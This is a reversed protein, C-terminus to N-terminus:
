LRVKRLRLANGIVSVSSFSMAAAAIMPNLLWHFAPFLVGAAIPVGIINYVFAFFLNERINRMTAMSLRRARLIANLDGKLLTIGGAEMAVDTGTGMAIGVDAAALAPADNVGDGAMGVVHGGKQYLKVVEAKSQPLVDAEFAIGLRSAVAKATTASDGTVMVITLGARKLEGIVEATSSKLPDAVSILGAPKGDAAIFMVTQAQSRLAEAEREARRKEMRLQRLLEANGVAFQRGGVKGTVGRGTISEFDEASSIPLGRAEAAKVIAAALPHESGRELSVVVRLLEDESIESFSKVSTVEPKGETLTGTKDVILTDVKRFVELAEANRILIGAHAGRGTGVMVAMPTALGLACPCAVILVAVANVLAHAFRPQPGIMYWVVFTAIASLIVAPVFYASVKDALRQIPARSRQAESVMKVIQSLLTDAGVREARMILSGTGNVTGATVKAGTEKEVPLPEGTIMSEDISSHGDEVLGDVPVKEGPRVRLRDGVEVDSLPIDSESGNQIKRATRPALGLLAKIASSTQSRARLEMVQGLLVLSIIVAAPEFYLGIEGNGERFSAPFAQPAITATVSYVYAAGSGLAILTFMNPSRHVLSQWAREFFPWGCWLVVPTALASELWAWTQASLVHQLPMGPLFESVMLALLPISLAVSIWFRRSMDALEPNSETGTIERPELAMGCIPCAGPESRVIEPHMPCTYETRTVPPTITEPELAMGCRPCSGPGNQRVEPHMPCIYDVSSGAQPREGQLENKYTAYKQPDANFTDACGKSCFYLPHGEYVVTAVARAPEVRMGCVPDAESGGMVGATAMGVFSEPSRDFREKCSRSCFYFTEGRFESKGATESPDVVMGCVPDKAGMMELSKNNGCCCM